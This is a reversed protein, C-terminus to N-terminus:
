YYMSIYLWFRWFWMDKLQDNGDTTANSLGISQEEFDINAANCCLLYYLLRWWNAHTTWFQYRTSYAWSQRYFQYLCFIYVLISMDPPYIYSTFLILEPNTVPQPPHCAARLQLRSQLGTPTPRTSTWRIRETGLNNAIEKCQWKEFAPLGINPKSSARSFTM